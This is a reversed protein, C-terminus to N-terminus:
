FLGGFYSCYSHLNDLNGLWESNSLFFHRINYANLIQHFVDFFQRTCLEVEGWSFVSADTMYKSFSFWRSLRQQIQELAWGKLSKASRRWCGSNQSPITPTDWSNSTFFVTSYFLEGRGGSGWVSSFIGELYHVKMLTEIITVLCFSVMKWDFHPWSSPFNMVERIVRETATKQFIYFTPFLAINHLSDNYSFPAFHIPLCKRCFPPAMWDIVFWRRSWFHRLSRLDVRKTQEEAIEIIKYWNTGFDKRSKAYVQYVLFVFRMTEFQANKTHTKLFQALLGWKFINWRPNQSWVKPGLFCSITRILEMWFGQTIWIDVNRFMFILRFM